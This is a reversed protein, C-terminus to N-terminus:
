SRNGGPGNMRIQLLPKDPRLDHLIVFQHLVATLGLQFLETFHIHLALIIDHNVSIDEINAKRYLSRIRQHERQRHDPLSLVKKKTERAEPSELYKRGYLYPRMQRGQMGPNTQIQLFRSVSGEERSVRYYSHTRIM